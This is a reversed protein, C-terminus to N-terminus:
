NNVGSYKVTIVLQSLAISALYNSWVAIALIIAVNRSFYIDKLYQFNIALGQEKDLVGRHLIYGLLM